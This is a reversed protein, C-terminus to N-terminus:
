MRETYESITLVKFNIKGAQLILYKTVEDFLLALHNHKQPDSFLLMILLLHFFGGYIKGRM